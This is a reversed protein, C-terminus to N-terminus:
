NDIVDWALKQTPVCSVDAQNTKLDLQGFQNRIEVDRGYPVPQM